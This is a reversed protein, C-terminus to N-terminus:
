DNVTNYRWTWDSWAPGDIMHRRGTRSRGLPSLINDVLFRMVDGPVDSWDWEGCQPNRRVFVTVNTPYVMVEMMSNEYVYVFVDRDTMTAPDHPIKEGIGNVGAGRVFVTEDDIYYFPLGSQFVFGDYQM